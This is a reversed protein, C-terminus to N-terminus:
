DIDESFGLANNLFFFFFFVVGCFVLLLFSFTVARPLNISTCAFLYPCGFFFFGKIGHDHDLLDELAEM